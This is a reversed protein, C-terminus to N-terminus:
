CDIFYGLVCTENSSYHLMKVSVGGLFRAIKCTFKKINNNTPWHFKFHCALHIKLPLYNGDRRPSRGFLSGGIPYIILAM